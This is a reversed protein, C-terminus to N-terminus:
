DVHDAELNLPQSSENGSEPLEPEPPKTEDLPKLVESQAEEIFALPNLM